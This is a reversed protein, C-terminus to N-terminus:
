DTHPTEPWLEGGAKEEDTRKAFMKVGEIFVDVRKVSNGTMSAVRDRVTMQVQYATKAIETGFAVVIRIDIGYGGDPDVNVKVGRDSEKKSFWDAIGDVLGSGVSCVGNVELAALRVISAVVSHNVNINGLSPQDDANSSAPESQQPNAM